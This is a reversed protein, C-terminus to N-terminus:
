RSLYNANLYDKLADEWSPMLNLGHKTLMYNEMMESYPRLAPYDKSFYSSDVPVLGIDERGLIELIKEAVDFRTGAGTCAMHYLGFYDTQILKLLNRSFAPTYTPTGWKDNVAYIKKAGEKVQKIIKAVFKKDKYGGGVMWGARVVFYKKLLKQVIKEGELKTNGYVNIPYAPDLETYATKKKGDFVGATSIYVLLCGKERCIFAANETGVTNTFYAHDPEAECLDVDTEAALHMVIDPKIKKVFDEMEDHDRVDLYEIGSDINIDTPFVEFGENKFTPVLSSGLMGGAGTVLIKM